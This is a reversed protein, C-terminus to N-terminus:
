RYHLYHILGDQCTMVEEEEPAFFPVELELIVPDEDWGIGDLLVVGSAATGLPYHQDYSVDDRRVAGLSISACGETNTCSDLNSASVVELSHQSLFTPVDIKIEPQLGDSLLGTEEVPIINIAARQGASAPLDIRVTLDTLGTTHSLSGDAFRLGMSAERCSSLRGDEGPADCDLTLNVREVPASGISAMRDECLSEDVRMSGTDSAVHLSDPIATACGTTLSHALLLSASSRTIM